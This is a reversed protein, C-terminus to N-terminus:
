ESLFCVFHGHTERWQQATVPFAFTYSLAPNAATAADILGPETCLPLVAQQVSAEGPFASATFGPVQGARVVQAAHATSCSVVDYTPEWAGTFTALCSGTLLTDWDYTGPALSTVPSPSSSTTPSPIPSAAEFSSRGLWFGALGVALAVLTTVAIFVVRRSLDNSGTLIPSVWLPLTPIDRKKM